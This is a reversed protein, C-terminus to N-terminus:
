MPQVWVSDARSPFTAILMKLSFLHSNVGVLSFLNIHISLKHRQMPGNIVQHGISVFKRM